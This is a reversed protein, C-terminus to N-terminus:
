HHDNEDTKPPSKGPGFVADTLRKVLARFPAEAFGSLFAAAYYVDPNFAPTVQAEAGSAAAGATALETSVLLLFAGLSGMVVGTWPRLKHWLDYSGKWDVRHHWFIGTLSAMSGGIAGFWVIAVPLRGFHHDAIWAGFSGVIQSLAAVLLLILFSGVAIWIVGRPAAAGTAPAPTSAPAVTTM